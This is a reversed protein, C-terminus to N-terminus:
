HRGWGGPPEYSFATPTAARAASPLLGSWGRSGSREIALPGVSLLLLAVAMAAAAAAARIAMGDEPSLGERPPVGAAQRLRLGAAATWREPVLARPMRQLLSEGLQYQRLALRCRSCRDLHARLHRTEDATLEGELLSTLLSRAQWHMM